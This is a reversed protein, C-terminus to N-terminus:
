WWAPYLLGALFGATLTWRQICSCGFGIALEVAPRLKWPQQLQVHYRQCAAGVAACWSCSEASQKPVAGQGISGNRMRHSGARVRLGSGQRPRCHGM